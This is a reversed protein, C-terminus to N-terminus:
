VITSVTVRLPLLRIQTTIPLAFLIVLKGVADCQQIIAEIMERGDRQRSRINRGRLHRHIVGFSRGRHAARRQGKRHLAVCEQEVTRQSRIVHLDRKIRRLAVHHVLREGCCHRDAQPLAKRGPATHVALDANIRPCRRSRLTRAKSALAFSNTSLGAQHSTASLTSPTSNQIKRKSAARTAPRM